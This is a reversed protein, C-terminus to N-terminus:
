SSQFNRVRDIIALHVPDTLDKALELAQKRIVEADPSRLLLEERALYLRAVHERPDGKAKALSIAEQYLSRGTGSQQSRFAIMGETAAVFIRESPSADLQKARVILRKAEAVQGVQVLSFALNNFLTVDNQNSILGQRASDIALSFDETVVSALYSVHIAPRSSFPEDNQWTLTESIATSWDARRWALWFNAEYSATKLGWDVPSVGVNRAIWAAQAISNETPNELSSRVLKRGVKVNGSILELTGLASALESTHFPSYRGDELIKKAYKIHKSTQHKAAATAIEAALIWPDAKLSASDSLLRHARDKDGQHLYLRSGARLILRNSPAMSLAARMSRSAKDQVGLSTYLRALNCWLIPNRPYRQLQARIERVQGYLHRQIGPFPARGLVTRMGPAFDEDSLKEKTESLYTAALDMAVRPANSSSLVLRAADIATTFKGLSLACSVLDCAVSLSPRAQWEKALDVLTEDSFPNVGASKLPALEGRGCTAVFDRWRPVVQRERDENIGPM